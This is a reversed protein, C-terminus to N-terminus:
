KSFHEFLTENPSSFSASRFGRGSRNALSAPLAVERRRRKRRTERSKAGIQGGLAQERRRALVVEIEGCRGMRAAGGVGARRRERYSPKSGGSSNACRQTLENPRGSFGWLEASFQRSTTGRGLSLTWVLQRRIRGM